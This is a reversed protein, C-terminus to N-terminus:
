GSRGVLARQMSGVDAAVLEANSGHEALGIEALALARAGATINEIQSSM